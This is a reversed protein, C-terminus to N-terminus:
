RWFTRRYPSRRARLRADRMVEGVTEDDPPLIADAIAKVVRGIGKLLGGLAKGVSALRGPPAPEVREPKEGYAIQRLGADLEESTRQRRPM